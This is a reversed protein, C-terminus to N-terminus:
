SQLVFLLFITLLATYRGCSLTSILGVSAIHLKEFVFFFRVNIRHDHELGIFLATAKCLTGMIGLIKLILSIKELEGLAFTIQRDNELM